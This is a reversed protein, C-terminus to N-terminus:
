DPWVVPIENSVSDPARDMRSPLTFPQEASTNRTPDSDTFSSCQMLSAAPPMLGHYIPDVDSGRVDLRRPATSPISDPLLRSTFACGDVGDLLTTPADLADERCRRSRACAACHKILYRAEGASHAGDLIEHVAFVRAM